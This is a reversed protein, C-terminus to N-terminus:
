RSLLRERLERTVESSEDITVKGSPPFKIKSTVDYGAKKLRDSGGEDRDVIVIVKVVKCGAEEAAEIAKKVSGGATIVDDVIAVNFGKKYHGEIKRRTGHEKAKERVIFSPIPKGEQYSVLTVATIIPFAGMALGGIADVNTDVIEDFIAKGVQYAGEPSLTLKKGEFYHDSRKGSALEFDGYQLAGTKKALELIRKSRETNMGLELTAIATSTVM